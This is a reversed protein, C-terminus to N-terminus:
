PAQFGLSPVGLKFDRGSAKYEPNKRGSFFGNIEAPNSGALRQDRPSCTIELGVIWPNVCEKLTVHTLNSRRARGVGVSVTLLTITQLNLPYLLCM